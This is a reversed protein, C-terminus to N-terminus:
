APRNPRGQRDQSDHYQYHCTGNVIDIVRPPLAPALVEPNPSAGTQLFNAFPAVRAHRDTSCLVPCILIMHFCHKHASVIFGKTKVNRTYCVVAHWCTGAEYQVFNFGDEEAVLVRPISVVFKHLNNGTDGLVKVPIPRPGHEPLFRM